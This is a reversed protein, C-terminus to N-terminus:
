KCALCKIVDHKHPKRKERLRANKKRTVEQYHDFECCLRRTCKHDIEYGKRIKGKKARWLALHVAITQGKYTTRGYPDDKGDTQGQWIRCGTEPDLVTRAMIRDYTDQDKM